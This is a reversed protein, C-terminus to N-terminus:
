VSRTIPYVTLNLVTVSDCGTVISTTTFSDVANGGVTITRGNWLYPLETVCISINHQARLIPRVFLNSTVVSDCNTLLSTFTDIFTYSGVTTINRNQYTVPLNNECVTDNNTTRIANKVN